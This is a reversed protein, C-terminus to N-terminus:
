SPFTLFRKVNFVKELALNHAIHWSITIFFVFLVSFFYLFYFPVPSSQLVVWNKANTIPWKSTVHSQAPSHRMANHSPKPASVKNKRLQVNLSQGGM